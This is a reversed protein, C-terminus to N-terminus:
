SFDMARGFLVHNMFVRSILEAALHHHHRRSARRSRDPSGDSSAASNPSSVTTKSNTSDPRLPACPPEVQRTAIPTTSYVTIIAQSRPRHLHRHGCGVPLRRLHSRQRGRDARRECAPEPCPRRRGTPRTRKNMVTAQTQAVTSVRTYGFRMGVVPPRVSESAHTVFHLVGTDLCRNRLCVYSVGRGPCVM